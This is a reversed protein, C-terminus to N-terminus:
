YLPFNAGRSRWEIAAELAKGVRYYTGNGKKVQVLFSNTSLWQIASRIRSNKGLVNEEVKTGSSEPFNLIFNWIELYLSVDFSDVEIEGILAILDPEIAARFNNSQSPKVLRGYLRPTSGGECRSFLDYNRDKSIFVDVEESDRRPKMLIAVDCQSKKAQAGIPFDDIVTDKPLHDLIVVCIGARKLRMFVDNFLKEVQDNADTNIGMTRSIGSMGDVVLIDPRTDIYEDVLEYIESRSEPYAFVGADNPNVQMLRLRTALIAGLNEFDWYRIDNRSILSLAIWSKWTGPKGYLLHINGPYLLGNGKTDQLYEAKVEKLNEILPNRHPKYKRLKTSDVGFEDKTELPYLVAEDRIMSEDWIPFGSDSYKTLENWLNTSSHKSM